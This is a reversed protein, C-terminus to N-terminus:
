VTEGKRELILYSFWHRMDQKYRLGTRLAEQVLTNEGLYVASKTAEKFVSCNYIDNAEQSVLNLFGITSNKGPEIFIAHGNKRLMRNLASLYNQIEQEGTNEAENLMNSELILDLNSLSQSTLFEFADRGVILNM